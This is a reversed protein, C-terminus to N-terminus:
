EHAPTTRSHSIAINALAAVLAIQLFFLYGFQPNQLFFTDLFGHVLAGLMAIFVVKGELTHLRVAERVASFVIAFFSVFGVIGTEALVQLYMNHTDDVAAAVPLYDLKFLRFHAFGVGLLPASLWMRVALVAYILRWTDTDVDSEGLRKVTLLALSILISLAVVTGLTAWLKQRREKPLLAAMALLITVTGIVGGRSQTLLVGLVGASVLAWKKWAQTRLLLAFPICMNIFGAAVNFHDFFSPSRGSWELVSDPDTNLAFFLGTYEGSIAQVVSFAVIPLISLALAAAFQRFRKESDILAFASVAFGMQAALRFLARSSFESIGARFSTVTAIVVYAAMLLMWSRPFAFVRRPFKLIVIAFFATRMLASIDHIPIGIDAYLNIGLTFILLLFAPWTEVVAFTLFAAGLAAGLAPPYVYGFTVLAVAVLAIVLESRPRLYPLAATSSM